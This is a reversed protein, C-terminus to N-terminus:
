ASKLRYLDEATSVTRGADALAVGSSFAETGMTPMTFALAHNDGPQSHFNKPSSDGRPAAHAGPQPVARRLRSPPPGELASCGTASRM